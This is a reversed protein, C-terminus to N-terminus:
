SGQAQAADPDFVYNLHEDLTPQNDYGSFDGHQHTESWLPDPLGAAVMRDHIARDHALWIQGTLTQIDANRVRQTNKQERSMYQVYGLTRVHVPRTHLLSRVCLDYDDAVHLKRNHGGISHYFGRRWARLHNPASVIHRATVANIPPTRKVIVEAGRFVQTEERGYGFAWVPGYSANGGGEFVECWDTYAFGADPHARMAAVTAALCGPTLEDDHDLEALIDGRCLGCLRAKLEGIIGSPVGRYISVRPDDAAIGRLLPWTSEDPSDDLVVWEWEPYSQDLLSQYARYILKGTRHAPTFVSVLPPAAAHAGRLANGSFCTMAASDLSAPVHEAPFHVWCRRVDFAASMLNPFEELTGASLIASPRHTALVQLLDSDAPRWLAEFHTLTHHELPKGLLLATLRNM